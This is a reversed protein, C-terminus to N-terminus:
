DGRRKGASPSRRAIVLIDDCYVVLILGMQRLPRLAERLLRAFFAPSCAAGMPLVRYRYLQPSSAGPPWIQVSLYNRDAPRLPVSHFAGDVDVSTMFCGPFMLRLALRITEMRLPQHEMWLNPGRMDAIPRRSDSAPKPVTFFPNSVVRTGLPVPEITGRELMSTVEGAQALRESEEPPPRRPVWMDLPPRRGSKWPIPAGESVVRYAWSRPGATELWQHRFRPWGTSGSRRAPLPAM